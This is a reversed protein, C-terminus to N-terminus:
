KILEYVQDSIDDVLYTYAEESSNSQWTGIMSFIKFVIHLSEHYITGYLSKGRQRPKIWIYFHDAKDDHEVRYSTGLTKPEPEEVLNLDYEENLYKVLEEKTECKALFLYQTYNCKLKEIKIKM